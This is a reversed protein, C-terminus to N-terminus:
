LGKPVFYREQYFRLEAVSELIDDLARHQKRKVFEAEGYWRLVLEKVTSVDIVRYHFFNILQPMHQILFFKDQWVSNGCLPMEGSKGFQGLFDLVQAEAQTVSLKSQAVLDVLGSAQHIQQVESSMQVLLEAPQHIILDPGQAILNLQNDTVLVAIELIQDQQANLGTMELDIWGLYKSKQTM